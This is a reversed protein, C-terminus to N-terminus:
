EKQSRYEQDTVEKLWTTRGKATNPTIAIQTFGTEPSAGHWHPIDAPCRVVDGKRLVRVPKGKEQYYGIGGTALLVQGGAHSHWYTRAGPEFTVNGIPINFASDPAVLQHVWATGTFNAAPVREGKPFATDLDATKGSQAHATFVTLVWFTTTLIKSRNTHDKM